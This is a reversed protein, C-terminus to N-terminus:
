GCNGVICSVEERMKNGAASAADLTMEGLGLGNPRGDSIQAM